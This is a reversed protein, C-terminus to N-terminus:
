QGTRGAEALLETENINKASFWFLELFWLLSDPVISISDPRKENPTNVSGDARCIGHNRGSSSDSCFFLTFKILVRDLTSTLLENRTM